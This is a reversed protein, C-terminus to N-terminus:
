VDFYFNNRAIFHHFMGELMKYSLVKVTKNRNITCLIYHDDWFCSDFKSWDPSCCRKHDFISDKEKLLLQLLRKGIFKSQRRKSCADCSIYVQSSLMCQCPWYQMMFVVLPHWSAKQIMMLMKSCMRVVIDSFLRFNFAM